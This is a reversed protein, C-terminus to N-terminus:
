KIILIQKASLNYFQTVDANQDANPQSPSAIAVDRLYFASNTLTGFDTYGCVVWFHGVAGYGWDSSVIVPWNNNIADKVQTFFNIATSITPTSAVIATRGYGGNQSLRAAWMLDQLAACWQFGSSVRNARYAASNLYFINHIQNLTKNQGSVYQMAIKLATHGCWGYHNPNELTNFEYYHPMVGTLWRTVPAAQAIEPLAITSALAIGAKLFDRKTFDNKAQM